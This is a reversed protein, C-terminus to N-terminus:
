TPMHLSLFMRAIVYGNELEEVLAEATLLDKRANHGRRGSRREAIRQAEALDERARSVLLDHTTTTVASQSGNELVDTL